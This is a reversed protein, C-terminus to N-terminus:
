MPPPSRVLDASMAAGIRTELVQASNFQDLQITAATTEDLAAQPVLGIIESGAIEVGSKLARAKVAEFATHISTVRYDTLNMAVQVIGRSTLKVGIAKLCPLGGSSQRISKAITDATALESTKLNVNFAILPRRAGIIIAGATDHLRPPGFDPLWAPDTEMRSALGRLGGLRISEVSRHDHASTAEEYLFVPIGLDSGVQQGVCRALQTCEEMTVRQIPIFPVVDTAGVRPHVGVHSRLDILDTAIMIARYAAESVAQPTGAFTLVSRHHDKDMTHDLLWVGPTSMVATTLAQVIASNRGESFNPVCEVIQPM